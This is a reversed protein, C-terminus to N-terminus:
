GAIGTKILKLIGNKDLHFQFYKNEIGEEEPNGDFLFVEDNNIKNRQAQNSIKKDKVIFTFDLTDNSLVVRSEMKKNKTEHIIEIEENKKLKKYDLTKFANVIDETFIFKINKKVIKEKDENTKVNKLLEALSLNNKKYVSILETDEDVLSIYKVLKDYNENQIDNKINLINGEMIDKIDNKKTIKNIQKNKYKISRSNEKLNCSAIISMIFFVIVINRKM